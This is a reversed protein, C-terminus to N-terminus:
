KQDDRDRAARLQEIVELKAVRNTLRMLTLGLAMIGLNGGANLIDILGGDM